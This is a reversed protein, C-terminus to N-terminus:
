WPFRPDRVGDVGLNRSMGDEPRAALIPQEIPTVRPTVGWFTAFLVDIGGLAVEFVEM